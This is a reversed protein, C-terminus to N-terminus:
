RRNGKGARAAHIKFLQFVRRPLELLLLVPPLRDFDVQFGDLLDFGARFGTGVQREVIADAVEVELDVVGGCGHAGVLPRDVQVRVLAEEVVGDREAALDQTDIGAPRLGIELQALEVGALVDDDLGLPVQDLEELAHVGEPLQVLRELRHLLEGVLERTALLDPQHQDLQQARRGALLLRELLQGLDRSVQFGAAIRGRGGRRRTLRTGRGGGRRRHAGGRGGRPAAIEHKEVGSEGGGAASTPRAAHEQAPPEAGRRALAAGARPNKSSVSGANSPASVPSPSDAAGGGGPRSCLMSASIGASATARDRARARDSRRRNGSRSRATRTRRLARPRRPRTSGPVPQDLHRVIEVERQLSRCRSRDPRRPAAGCRSRSKTSSCAEAKTSSSAAAAGVAPTGSM